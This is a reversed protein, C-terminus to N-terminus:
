GSFTYRYTRPSTHQHRRFWNSFQSLHVFGLEHAIEKVGREMSQLQSCAYLLRRQSWFQFPTQGCTDRWIRDLQSASVGVAQSVKRRNWNAAMPWSEILTMSKAMLPHTLDPARLRIGATAIQPALIRWFAWIKERVEIQEEFSSISLIPGGPPIGDAHKKYTFQELVEAAAELEPNGKLVAVSPGEWKASGVEVAFHISIIRSKPSFSQTRRGLGPVLVMWSGKGAKVPPGSATVDVEGELMHWLIFNMTEFSGKITNPQNRYCWLLRCRVANWDYSRPAEFSEGTADVVPPKAKKTGRKM